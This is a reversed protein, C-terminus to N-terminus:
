FGLFSRFEIWNFKTLAIITRKCFEQVLQGKAAEKVFFQLNRHVGCITHILITIGAAKRRIFHLGQNKPVCVVLHYGGNRCFYCFAAFHTLGYGGLKSCLNSGFFQFVKLAGQIYLQM